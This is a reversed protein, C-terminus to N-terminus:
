NVRNEVALHLPTKGQKNIHNIDADRMLLQTCHDLDNKLIYMIFINTGNDDEQDINRTRLSLYMCARDFNEAAAYIMPTQGNALRKDLDAGHDCFLEIANIYQKRLAVFFPSQMRFKEEEFFVSANKKLLLKILESNENIVAENLASSGMDTIINVDAGGRILIKAILNDEDPDICSSILATIGGARKENLPYSSNALQQVIQSFKRDTAVHLANSLTTQHINMIDIGNKALLNMCKGHGYYSALWFSNIGSTEDCVQIDNSSNKLIGKLINLDGKVAVLQIPFYSIENNLQIKFGLDIQDEGGCDVFKNYNQYKISDYVESQLQVLTKNLIFNKRVALSENSDGLSISELFQSSIISESRKRKYVQPMESNEQELTKILGDLDETAMSSLNLDTEKYKRSQRMSNRGKQSVHISARRKLISVKKEPSETMLPQLTINIDIGKKSNNLISDESSSGSLQVDNINSKKQNKMKLINYSHHKIIILLGLQNFGLILGLFMM